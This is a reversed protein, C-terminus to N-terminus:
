MRESSNCGNALGVGAPSAPLQFLFELVSAEAPAKGGMEAGPRGKHLRSLITHPILFCESLDAEM